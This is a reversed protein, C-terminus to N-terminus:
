FSRRFGANLLWPTRVKDGTTKSAEFYGSTKDNFATTIGLAFEMYTEKLDERMTVPTLGGSSMTVDSHANFERLLSAQLYFSNQKVTKGVMVGLRGIVSNLGGQSVSTGDSTTFDASTIRNFTIEAQPELYWQNHLSKRLGYEASLSTGWNNYSADVRTNDANKLYSTFSNKLRGQKLILDLFHGKNGFWSSYAGISISSADGTGREMTADANLYGLTYGTFRTGSDSVHKTDHGGQLATYKQTTRRGDISNLEQEGSYVRAWDGTQGSGTRLDGMRRILHNNEDRWLTLTNAVADHATYMTESAATGGGSLGTIYWLVHNQDESFITFAEQPSNTNNFQSSSIIPTYRYAGSDTAIGTFTATGDSVTAFLASGSITPSHGFGPDYNVKVTNTTSGGEITIHDSQNNALDTNIVFNASGQPNSLTVNNGITGTTALRITGGNIQMDYLWANGESRLAVTGGSVVVNSTVQANNELYQVGGRNITTSTANGFQTVIQIGGQNITASTASGGSNVNQVGGSAIITSNATGNENVNQVGGDFITSSVANGGFNVNQMGGDHITTYTTEGGGNINQVGGDYISTLTASGANVNQTGGSIDTLIALGGSVAQTGGSNIITSSATADFTIFQLGSNEITTSIATGSSHIDQFGGSNITTSTASGRSQISQTGGSNITTSAAYGYINVTQLGGSNITTESAVSEPDIQQTGSSNITTSVAQGGLMLHQTGGSNITTSVAMGIDLMNMVYQTGGNNIITTDAIGDVVNQDGGNITTSIATGREVDQQGSLTITTSIATGGSVITQSGSLIATSIATGGNHVTQFDSYHNLEENTVSMGSTVDVTYAYATSFFLKDLIQGVNPLQSYLDEHSLQRQFPANEATIAALPLTLPAISNFGNVTAMLISLTQQATLKNKRKRKLM